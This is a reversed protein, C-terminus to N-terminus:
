INAFILYFCLAIVVARKISYLIAIPVSKCLTIQQTNKADLHAGHRSTGLTLDTM